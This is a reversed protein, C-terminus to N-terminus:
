LIKVDQRKWTMMKEDDHCFLFINTLVVSRLLAASVRHRRPTTGGAIKWRGGRRRTVVYTRGRPNPTYEYTASGDGESGSVVRWTDEQIIITSPSKVEIITYPDQDSGIIETAGMGVEPIIDCGAM